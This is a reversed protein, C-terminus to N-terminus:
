QNRSGRGGRPIIHSPQGQPVKNLNSCKLPFGWHKSYIEMIHYSIICELEKVAVWTSPHMAHGTSKDRM